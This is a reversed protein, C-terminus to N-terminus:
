KPTGVFILIMAVLMVFLAVSKRFLNKERFFVAGIVFTVLVSSRRVLSTVSLLSGESRLAFFYLADAATIFVAILLLTWDWRFPRAAGFHLCQRLLIIAAMMLTIYFNTWSQIFMPDLHLGKIIHNDYLASGAGALISLALYFVGRSRVFRVGDKRSSLSLLFIAVLALLSGAWQWANLREGFILISLVLVLMPRAAKMTSVLTIPLTQLALMGTIWSTTVIAAKLVLAGHGQVTGPELFLWPSLFLTTLATTCLLVTLPDNQVLSHKKAVDYLGLLIASGIVLFIWM